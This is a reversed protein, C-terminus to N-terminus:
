PNPTKGRFFENRERIINELVQELSRNSGTEPDFYSPYLIYAGAFIEEKTLIRQRRPNPQRDDTLGWGAYFPCGLTTVKIGRLLAEFGSLSTITYVRDITELAQALPIDNILITCKSKLQEMDSNNNRNGSLVDPHEKYFVQADQNEQCAISLLDYNTLSFSDSVAM